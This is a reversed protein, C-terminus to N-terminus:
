AATHLWSALVGAAHLSPRSERLLIAMADRERPTLGTPLAHAMVTRVAGDLDRGTAAFDLLAGREAESLGLLHDVSRLLATHRLYLLLEEAIEPHAAARAVKLKQDLPLEAFVKMAFASAAEELKKLAAEADAERGRLAPVTRLFASMRENMLEPHWGVLGTTALPTSWDFLARGAAGTTRPPLQPRTGETGGGVLAPLWHTAFEQVRGSAGRAVDWAQRAVTPVSLLPPPPSADANGDLLGLQRGAKGREEGDAMAAPLVFAAAARLLWTALKRATFTRAFADADLRLAPDACVEAAREFLFPCAAGDRVCSALPLADDPTLRLAAAFARGIRQVQAFDLSKTWAADVRLDDLHEVPVGRAKLEAEMRPRCRAMADAVPRLAESDATTLDLLAYERSSTPQPTPVGVTLLVAVLHYPTSPM